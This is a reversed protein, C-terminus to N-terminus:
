SFGANRFQVMPTFDIYMYRGTSSFNHYQYNQGCIKALRSHKMKSGARPVKKFKFLIILIYLHRLGQDIGMGESCIPLPDRNFRGEYGGSPGILQPVLSFQVSGMDVMQM